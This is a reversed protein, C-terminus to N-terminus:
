EYSTIIIIMLLISTELLQNSLLGALDGIRELRGAERNKRCIINWTGLHHVHFSTKITELHDKRSSIPLYELLNHAQPLHM